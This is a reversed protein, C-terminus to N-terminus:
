HAKDYWFTVIRGDKSFIGGPQGSIKLGPGVETPVEVASNKNKAFFELADNM